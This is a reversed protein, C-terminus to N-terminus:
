VHARGIELLSVAMDGLNSLLGPAAETVWDALAAAWEEVFGALAEGFGSVADLALEFGGQLDGGLVRSVAESLQAFVPGMAAGFELAAAALRGFYEVIPQLGAPLQVLFDNLYDGDEAVARFYQALPVLVGGLGSFAAKAGEIAGRLGGAIADAVSELLPMNADLAGQMGVLGEKLADFIPQGIKTQLTTMTDVFTSWRGELTEAKAAILDSDFGMEQMARRVIELNPVGEAKLQNITSRSLNFREIISTFDGTMAERLSFSAGELGELPNSAALIEAEKVLDMLAMGSSKAVPMLSATAKAMEGFAFPTKAAETRVQAMIQETIAADKTFANFSSRVQEMENLAGLGVANGVGKIGAVASSVGAAALGLKGFGDVLGGMAGGLSGIAGHLGGLAGKVGGIPASAMDKATLLIALDAVSM